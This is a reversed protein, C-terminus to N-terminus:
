AHTTHTSAECRGGISRRKAMTEKGVKKIKIKKINDEFFFLFFSYILVWINTKMIQLNLTKRKIKVM